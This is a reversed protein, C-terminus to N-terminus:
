LEDNYKYRKSGLDKRRREKEGSTIMLNNEIERFINTKDYDKM